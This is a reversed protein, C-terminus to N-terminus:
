GPAKMPPRCMDIIESPQAPPLNLASQILLGAMVGGFMLAVVGVGFRKRGGALLFLVVIAEAVLAQQPATGIGGIGKPCVLKGSFELYNHFVGVGLGAVAAPLAALCVGAEGRERMLVGIGLVAATAFICARQYLCLPCAKFGMGLTLWLSGLSAVLAALM